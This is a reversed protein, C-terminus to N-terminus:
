NSFHIISNLTVARPCDEPQAIRFNKYLNGCRRCQEYESITVYDTRDSLSDLYANVRAMEENAFERSVSFHVRKCQNCTVTGLFHKSM